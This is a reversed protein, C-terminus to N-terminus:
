NMLPPRSVGYARTEALSLLAHAEAERLLVLAVAPALSFPDGLFARRCARRRSVQIAGRAEPELAVLAAVGKAGREVGLLATMEVALELPLGLPGVVRVALALDRERVVGLALERAVLEGRPLAIATELLRASGQRDFAMEVAALDDAHALMEREALECYPTRALASVLQRLSTVEAVTNVSLTEIAGLPRWSPRWRDAPVHRLAARWLLKVNEIEHLQALARLVGRAGPYGRMAVLYDPILRGYVLEAIPTADATVAVDHWGPVTLAPSDVAALAAVTSPTLLQAKHARIRALGYAHRAAASM